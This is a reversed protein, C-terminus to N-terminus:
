AFSHISRPQLDPCLKFSEAKLLFAFVESPYFRAFEKNLVVSVIHMSQPPSNGRFGSQQLTLVVVFLYYKCFATQQNLLCSLSEANDAATCHQSMPAPLLFIPRSHVRVYLGTGYSLGVLQYSLEPEERGRVQGWMYGCAFM